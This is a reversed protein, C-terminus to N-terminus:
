DSHSRSVIAEFANKQEEPTKAAKYQADLVALDADKKKQVAAADSSQQIGQEMRQIFMAAFKEAFWGLISLLWAPM